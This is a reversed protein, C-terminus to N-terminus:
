RVFICKIQKDHHLLDTNSKLFYLCSIPIHSFLAHGKLLLNYVSSFFLKRFKACPSDMLPFDSLNANSVKLYQENKM